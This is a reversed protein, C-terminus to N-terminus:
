DGYYELMGICSAHCRGSCFVQHGDFHADDESDKRFIAKLAVKEESM